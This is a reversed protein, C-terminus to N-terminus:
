PLSHPADGASVGLLVMPLFMLALEFAILPRDPQTPNRGCASAMLPLCACAGVTAALCALGVQSATLSGSGSPQGWRHHGPQTSCREKHRGAHFGCYELGMHTETEATRTQM